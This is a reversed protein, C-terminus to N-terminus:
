ARSGQMKLKWNPVNPMQTEMVKNFPVNSEPTWNPPKKGLKKSSWDELKRLYSGVDAKSAGKEFGDFFGMMMGKKEITGVKKIMTKFKNPKVKSVRRQLMEAVDGLNIIM